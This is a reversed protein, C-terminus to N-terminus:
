KGGCGATGFPVQCLPTVWCKNVSQLTRPQALKALCSLSPSMNVSCWNSISVLWPRCDCEHEDDEKINASFIMQLKCTLFHLCLPSLHPIAWTGVPAPCSVYTLSCASHCVSLCVLLGCVWHFGANLVMAKIPQSVGPLPSSRPLSRCMRRRFVSALRPRRYKWIKQFKFFSIM